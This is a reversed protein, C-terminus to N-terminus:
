SVEQRVQAGLAEPPSLIACVARQLDAPSWPKALMPADRFQQPVQSSPDSGSCFMFPIGRQQLAVAVDYVPENQIHIDLLAVGWPRADVMALADAVRTVHHCDDFGALSLVDMMMEAILVEDEVILVSHSNMKPSGNHACGNKVADVQEL